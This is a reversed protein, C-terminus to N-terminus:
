EKLYDLNNIQQRIDQQETQIQTVRDNWLDKDIISTISSEILKTLITPEIADLECAYEVGYTKSRPDRLLKELTATDEPKPPLDLDSIQNKTLAVRQVRFSADGTKYRRLRATLDREIDRGSPDYDGFYLIITALVWKQSLNQAMDKVFTFSGYGRTPYVQVNYKNAIDIFLNSLADKELAILVYLPQTEWMPRTWSQWCGKFEAFASKLFDEPDGLDFDGHGLVTRSRDELKSADVQKQERAKVLLKSLQKYSSLTNPIQLQSVLRYYIQRLTLRIHYPEYETLILNVSNVIEAYKM